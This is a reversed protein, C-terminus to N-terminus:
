GPVEALAPLAREQAAAVAAKVASRGLRGGAEVLRADALVALVADTRPVLRRRDKM